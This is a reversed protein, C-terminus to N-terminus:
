ELNWDFTGYKKVQQYLSSFKEIWQQYDPKAEYDLTRVYKLYHIFEIPVDRCIDEEALEAKM